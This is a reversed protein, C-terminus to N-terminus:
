IASPVLDPLPRSALERAERAPIGFMLLLNEVLEDCSADDVDAPHLLSLQLTALLAGVTSAIALQPNRVQFLGTAIGVEIDRRARFLV